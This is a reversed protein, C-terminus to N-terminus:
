TVSLMSTTCACSDTDFACCFRMDLMKPCLRALTARDRAMPRVSAFRFVNMPAFYDHSLYLLIRNFYFLIRFALAPESSNYAANNHQNQKGAAISQPQM